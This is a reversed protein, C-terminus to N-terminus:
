AFARKRISRLVGGMGGFGVLMLAWAAPEPVSGTADNNVLTIFLAASDVTATQQPDAGLSAITFSFTASDFTLPGNNPPFLDPGSDIEGHTTTGSGGSAVEVGQYDLELAGNSTGTDVDPFNAGTLSFDVNTRTLSAPVSFASSFAITATVTDGVALTIPLTGNPDSLALFYQSFDAGGGSFNDISVNNPDGTLSLSFDAAMASGSWAVLASAAALSVWRKVMM